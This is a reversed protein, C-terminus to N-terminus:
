IWWAKGKNSSKESTSLNDAYFRRNARVIECNETNASIIKSYMLDDENSNAEADQLAQFRNKVQITFADKIKNNPLKNIDFRKSKHIKIKTSRLNLQILSVVLHHDSSVDAGKMM